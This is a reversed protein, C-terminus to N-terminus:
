RAANLIEVDNAKLRIWYDGGGIMLRAGGHGKRGMASWTTANVVDVYDLDDKLELILAVCGQRDQPGAFWYLTSSVKVLDGVQM